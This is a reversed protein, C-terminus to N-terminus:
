ARRRADTLVPRRELNELYEAIWDLRTLRERCGGLQIGRLRGAKIERIVFRPSRKRGPLHAAAQPM